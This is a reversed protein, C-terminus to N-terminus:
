NEIGLRLSLPLFVTLLASRAHNRERLSLLAFGTDSRSKRAPSIWRTKLGSLRLKEQAKM